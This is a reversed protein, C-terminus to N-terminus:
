QFDVQFHEMIISTLISGDIHTLFINLVIPTKKNLEFDFLSIKSVM